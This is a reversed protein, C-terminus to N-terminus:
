PAAEKDASKWKAEKVRTRTAQAAAKTQRTIATFKTFRGEPFKADAGFQLGGFLTFQWLSIQPIHKSRLGRYVFTGRGLDNEAIAAPQAFYPMLPGIVYTEHAPHILKIDAVWDATLIDQWHYNFLGRVILAFLDTVKQADIKLQITPVLLGNPHREWLRSQEFTLEGRLSRNKRLRREINRQAYCHAEVHRNGFPLVSLVYHELTSKAGNCPSCAPVVPLNARDEKLFFEKAVVHDRTASVDSKGCYPCPKGIYKKRAM